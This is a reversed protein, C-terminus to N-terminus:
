ADLALSSAGDFAKAYRNPSIGFQKRFDRSFHSASAYGSHEAAINVAVNDDILLLRAKELRILKAYQMPTVSAFESFRHAFHSPSMAVSRAIESVNLPQTINEEIFRMAKLIQLHERTISSRLVSAADSRLLRFALERLCLPAILRREAPDDLSTLLRLLPDALATDLKGVFAAPAPLAKSQRTTDFEALEMLTRGLLDPPLQFKLAIYPKIPSAEVDAEYHRNGLMVLFHERDNIQTYNGTRVTKRGSIAVAVNLMSSYGRAYALPADARFLWVDPLATAIRGPATALTKIHQALHTIADTM